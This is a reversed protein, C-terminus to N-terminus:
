LLFNSVSSSLRLFRLLTLMESFLPGPLKDSWVSVVLSGSFLESLVSVLLVLEESLTVVFLGLRTVSRVLLRLAWSILRRDLPGLNLREGPMFSCVIVPMLM